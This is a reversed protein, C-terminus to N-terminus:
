GEKEEDHCTVPGGKERGALETKKNRWRRCDRQGTKMERKCKSRNGADGM